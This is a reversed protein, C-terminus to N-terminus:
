ELQIRPFFSRRNSPNANDYSGGVDSLFDDMDITQNCSEGAIGNCNAPATGSEDAGVPASVGTSIYTYLAEETNWEQVLVRIRYNTEFAEDLCGFTYYPNAPRVLTGSRDSVPDVFYPAESFITGSVAGYGTHTHAGMQFYNAVPTNSPYGKLAKIPATVHIIKTRATSTPVNEILMVPRGNSDHDEWDTKGPGAICSTLNGGWEKGREDNSTTGEPTIVTTRLRYKGFCCNAGGDEDSTDYACKVKIEDALDVEIDAASVPPTTSTCTYPASGDVVCSSSTVTGSANKNVTVQVDSPGTGIEYNYYWFTETSIYKCQNAPVNYQLKIGNFFLALEGAEIVCTLDNVVSSSTFTCRQAYLGELSTFTTFDLSDPVTVFLNSASYGSPITANKEEEEITETESTTPTPNVVTTGSTSDSSSLTTQSGGCSSLMMGLFSLLVIGQVVKLSGNM